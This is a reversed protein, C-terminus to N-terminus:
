RWWWRLMMGPTSKLWCRNRSNLTEARFILLRHVANKAQNDAVKGNGFLPLVLLCIIILTQLFSKPRLAQM